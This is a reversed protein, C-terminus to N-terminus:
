IRKLHASLLNLHQVLFPRGQTGAGSHVGLATKWHQDVVTRTTSPLKFILENEFESRLYDRVEGHDANRYKKNASTHVEIEGSDNLALELFMEHQLFQREFPGPLADQANADTLSGRTEAQPSVSTDSSPPVDHPAEQPPRSHENDINTCRTHITTTGGDRSDSQIANSNM